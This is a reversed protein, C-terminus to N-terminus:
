DCLDLEGNQSTARDMIFSVMKAKVIEDRLTSESSASSIIDQYLGLLGDNLPYVHENGLHTYYVHEDFIRITENDYFFTVSFDRFKDGTHIMYVYIGSIQFVFNPQLDRTSPPLFKVNFDFSKTEIMDLALRLFHSGNGLLDKSYTIIIKYPDGLKQKESRFKKFGPSFQRSYNVYTRESIQEALHFIQECEYFNSGIPKELILFKCKISEASLTKLVDLHSNTSTCVVVVEPKISKVDKISTSCPLKTILEFDRVFHLNVDYGFVVELGSKMSASYHTEIAGGKITPLSYRFGIKGLGM